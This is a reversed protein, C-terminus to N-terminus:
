REPLRYCREHGIHYGDCYICKYASICGGFKCRLDAAARQAAELSDYRIKPRGTRKNLHSHISFLGWGNGTLFFSRFFRKWPLQGKLALFINKATM